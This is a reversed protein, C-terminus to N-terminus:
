RPEDWDLGREAPIIRRLTYVDSKDLQARREPLTQWPDWVASILRGTIGDSEAAGLFVALEAAQSLSGGGSEKQKLAQKYHAEGVREPGAELIDELLRTNLAGPAVSNVDIGFEKVEVALTEAFRVVAAKSAAYASVYPMPKTAGGGSLQIIKGYRKQKFHPVVAAALFVSGYLNTEIASRWESRSVTEVPGKPGHVGANNVLVCLNPLGAVAAQVVRDVDDESAIDAAQALVRQGSKAQKSLEAHAASLAKEDRACLLVDAGAAVYAQAIALGLGRNAGTIIAGRGSLSQVM